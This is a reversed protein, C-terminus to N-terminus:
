SDKDDGKSKNVKVSKCTWDYSKIDRETIGLLELEKIDKKRLKGRSIMQQEFFKSDNSKQM